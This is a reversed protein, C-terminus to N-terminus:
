YVIIPTGVQAFNFMYAADGNYYNFNICGHSGGNFASPDYHPLNSYKGFWARWWADHLAYGYYSYDMAFHIPTPLYYNPSGPPDPSKFVTNTLKDLACHLGPVSPLDPAGTTVQLAKVFKGNDYLRAAQERLSVVIVRTSAIGYHNILQMDTAHPKNWATKDNLNTLMATINATFMLIENDVLQYDNATQANALRQTADGVGTNPDIYEYANPYGIGNAPDITKSAQGQAILKNLAALDSNTKAKILPLGIEASHKRLTTVLDTYSALSPKAAVAQAQAQDQTYLQEFSTTDQKEQQMLTINAQYQQLLKAAVGPLMTAENALTQQTQETLLRNLAAFDASTTAARFLTLDSAPWQSEPTVVQNSVPTTVQVLPDDLWYSENLGQGCQLDSTQASNAGNLLTTENQILKSFDQLRQYTPQFATVAGLQDLTFTDVAFYQPTTGAASFQTQAQTLRKQFGAAETFNAKVLTSVGASLSTLDTQTMARAQAPATSTLANVQQTLKVLQASAGTYGGYSSGMGALARQEADVIPQLRSPPVNYQARAATLASDLAAKDRQETSHASNTAFLTVAGGLLGLLIIGIIVGSVPVIWRRWGARPSAPTNFAPTNFAPSIPQPLTPRQDIPASFSPAGEYPSGPRLPEPIGANGADRNNM